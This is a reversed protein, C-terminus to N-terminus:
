FTLISLFQLNFLGFLLTKECIIKEILNQPLFQLKKNESSKKPFIV